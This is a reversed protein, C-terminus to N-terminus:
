SQHMAASKSYRPLFLMMLGAVVTTGALISLLTQYSGTVDFARGLIVPGIAGAIAYFTWTFGYLTSFSRLGYYRTLLYPTIDAEGGMGFGVLAAALCAAPFTKLGSLLFIGASALMLLGFAIRPGSFRDLLYGVGLRGALSAFGLFSASLAAERASIGRDTLLAVLHTLAGNLSISSLFLTAVIIWFPLSRLGRQWTVGSLVPADTQPRDRERERVYRATLPLALVLVMVGLALYAARWGPGSILTQAVFPLVISGIGTGAMVLALAMGLRRFFWTSVARSYGMQTTANGVLGILLCVAYFQWPSPQLFALSAMACGFIAACPLIIRRAGFRDLWSGLFPSSIAVMVAAIGFGRSIVERGWGFEAALPKVFVSFTYVFLSGFGVMVGISSALVVRWGFYARDSEDVQNLLKINEPTVM